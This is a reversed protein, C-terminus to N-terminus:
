HIYSVSCQVFLFFSDHIYQLKREFRESYYVQVYYCFMIVNFSCINLKLSLCMVTYMCRSTLM